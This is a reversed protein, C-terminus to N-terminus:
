DDGSHPKPSERSEALSPGSGGRRLRVIVQAAVYTLPVFATRLVDLASTSWRLYGRFRYDDYLDLMEMVVGLALASLLMVIAARTSKQWRPVLLFLFLISAGIVFHLDNREFPMVSVILTKFQDYASSELGHPSM